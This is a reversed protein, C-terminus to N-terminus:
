HKAPGIRHHVSGEMVIFDNSKTDKNKSIRGTFVMEEM